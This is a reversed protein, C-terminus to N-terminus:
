SVREVEAPVGNPGPDTSPASTARGQAVANGRATIRECVRAMGSREPHVIGPTKSPRAM